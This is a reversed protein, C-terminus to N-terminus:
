GQAPHAQRVCYLRASTHSKGRVGCVITFAFQDFWGTTLFYKPVQELANLSIDSHMVSLFCTVIIISCILSIVSTLLGLRCCLVSASCSAM